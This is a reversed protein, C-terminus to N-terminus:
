LYNTLITIADQTAKANGTTVGLEEKLETRLATVIETVADALEGEPTTANQAESQLDAILAYYFHDSGQSGEPKLWRSANSKLEAKMDEGNKDLYAKARAGPEKVGKPPSTVEPSQVADLQMPTLASRDKFIDGPVESWDVTEYPSPVDKSNVDSRNEKNTDGKTKGPNGADPLGPLLPPTAATRM